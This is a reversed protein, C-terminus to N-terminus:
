RIFVTWKISRLVLPTEPSESYCFMRYVFFGFLTCFPGWSFIFPFICTFPIINAVGIFPRQFPYRHSYGRYAANFSGWKQSTQPGGHSVEKALCKQIEPVPVPEQLFCCWTTSFVDTCSIYVRPFGVVM